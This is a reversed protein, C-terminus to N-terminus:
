TAIGNAKEIIATTSSGERHGLIRISVKRSALVEREDPNLAGEDVYDGGKVYFSPSIEGIPGCFDPGDFPFVFDVMRLAILMEMRDELPNVPRPPGKLARVSEDANVGVMLFDGVRAAERLMELHGRHLIDFCGNTLTVKMGAGMAEAAIAAASAVDIIRPKMYIAMM